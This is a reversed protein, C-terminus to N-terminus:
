QTFRCALKSQRNNARTKRAVRSRMGLPARLAMRRGDGRRRRIVAAIGAALRSRWRRRAGTGLRWIGEVIRNNQQRPVAQLQEPALPRLISPRLFHRVLCRRRSGDARSLLSHIPRHHYTLKRALCVLLYQARTRRGHGDLLQGYPEVVLLGDLAARRPTVARDLAVALDDRGHREGLEFGM